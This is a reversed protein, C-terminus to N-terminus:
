RTRSRSRNPPTAPPSSPRATDPMTPCELIQQEVALTTTTTYRAADHREYVSGGDRRHLVAPTEPLRTRTAATSLSSSPRFGSDPM